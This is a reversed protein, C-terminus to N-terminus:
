LGRATATAAGTQGAQAKDSRRRVMGAAVGVGVVYIWGETFDFLYSNFLSGVLNQVVLVLGIWEVLGAGRFLLLHSIWMAWLVAAGVLGLQIAIAFTQDHPNTSVEARAGSQGVAARQFMETISGTGHGFLPASSIFRISKSWFIIREGTPTRINEAQYKEAESLIGTVRDRFYPSTAWLTAVLVMGAAAAGVFGKWRFKRAGYLMVLVAIVVLTTRSTAIFFIDALFALSLVFLAAARMWGRVSAAEVALYLLVAACMTFEASQAIYSKVAVGNDPSTKWPAEPWITVLWSAILLAVCAIL